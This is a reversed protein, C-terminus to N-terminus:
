IIGHSCGFLTGVQGVYLGIINRVGITRFKSKHLEGVEKGSTTEVVSQVFERATDTVGLHTVLTKFRELILMDQEVSYGGFRANYKRRLEKRPEKRQKRRSM